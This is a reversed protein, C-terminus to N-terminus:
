LRLLHKLGIFIASGLSIILGAGGFGVVAGILLLLGDELVVALMIIVVGLSPLTDLGSFPPAVFAFITLMLCVLGILRLSLSQRMYSSLRPRSFKEFWRIYRVINPLVKKETLQGLTRKRWSKPLWISRRGAILELCLLMAVIEFVHTIGGTPIPLAPVALLLMIAIALSKEAFADDLAAVTKPGSGSLWQKLQQSFPTRKM